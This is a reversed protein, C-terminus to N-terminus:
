LLKGVGKELCWNCYFKSPSVSAYYARGCSKCVHRKSSNKRSINSHLQQHKEKSMLELNSIDNNDKNGDKHHVELGKMQEESLDLELRLKERHLYLIHGTKNHNNFWYGNGVKKRFLMVEDNVVLIQTKGSLVKEKVFDSVRIRAGLLELGNNQEHKIKEAKKKEYWIKKGLDHRRKGETTRKEM